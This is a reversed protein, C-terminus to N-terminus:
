VLVYSSLFCDELTWRGDEELWNKFFPFDIINFRTWTGRVRLEKISMFVHNELCLVLMFLPVHLCLQCHCMAWNELINLTMKLTDKVHWSHM